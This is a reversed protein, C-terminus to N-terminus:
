RKEIRRQLRKARESWVRLLEAANSGPFATDYDKALSVLSRQSVALLESLQDYEDSSFAVSAVSSVRSVPALSKTKLPKTPVSM